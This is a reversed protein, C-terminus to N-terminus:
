PKPHLTTGQVRVAGTTWIGEYAALKEPTLEDVFRTVTAPAKAGLDKLSQTVIWVAQRDISIIRDHISGYPAIRVEVPRQTHTANWKQAAPALRASYQPYRDTTLLRLSVGDPLRVAYDRLVGDDMFPDVVFVDAEARDFVDSIQVFASWVDGPAIFANDNSVPMQHEIRALARHLVAQLTKANMSRIVSGLNDAAVKFSVTDAGANTAEVAAYARGLWMQVAPDQLDCTELDPASEILAKLRAYLAPVDRTAIM